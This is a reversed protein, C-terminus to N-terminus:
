SAHALFLSVFVGGYVVAGTVIATFGLLLIMCDFTNYAANIARLTRKSLKASIHAAARKVKANGLLGHKEDDFDSYANSDQYDHLVQREKKGDDPTSCSSQSRSLESATFHGSDNSYRYAEPPQTAQMQLREALAEASIPLFATREETSAEQKRGMGAALKVIGMICQAVVAWTVIWGIKNHANNEYLNPTKSTYITGLLLGVSHVGLFLLQVLLAIRSRAVSLMVGIPSGVTLM